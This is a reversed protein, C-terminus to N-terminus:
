NKTFAYIDGNKAQVIIKNDVVLPRSILGSSSVETKAVIEGSDKNLLYLYGEFDGVIIYNQYIVPDTLQRHLLSSQTWDM